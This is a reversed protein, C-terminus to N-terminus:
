DGVPAEELEEQRRVLDALSTRCLICDISQKIERWVEQTCCRGSRRCRDGEETCHVIDFADELPALVESLNIEAPPRTLRYGGGKGRRSQVLRAARLSCLLGELYKLPIGQERAIQRASVRGQEYAGALVIMARTGYRGKTSIRM